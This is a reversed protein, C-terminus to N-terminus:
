TGVLLGFFVFETRRNLALGAADSQQTLPSRDGVGRASLRDPSIGQSIIYELAASARAQSLTLNQDSNGRQDAHGIVLCTVNRLSKMLAAVRGLEAAHQQGIESSGTPFRASNMEIVRVGATDPVRPDVTLSSAIKANPTQSSAEALASLRQQAAASPVSGSLTITGGNFVVLVPLPSGEPMITAGSAVSRNVAVSAGSVAPQAAGLAPAAADVARASSVGSGGSSPVIVSPSPNGRKTGHHSTLPAVLVAIVMAAAVAALGAFLWEARDHLRWWPRVQEYADAGAPEVKRFRSGDYM